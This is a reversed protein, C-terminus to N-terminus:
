KTGGGNGADLKIMNSFDQGLGGRTFVNAQGAPSGLPQMGFTGLGGYGTTAAPTIGLVQQLQAIHMRIQQALTPDTEAQVGNTFEELAHRLYQIKEEQTDLLGAHKEWIVGSAYVINRDDQKLKKAHEIADRAQTFYAKKKAPDTEKKEALTVLLNAMELWAQQMKPEAKVTAQYEVLADELRDAAVLIQAKTNHAEPNKEKQKISTDLEDFVAQLKEKMEPNKVKDGGIGRFLLVARVMHADANVPQKDIAVDIHKLADDFEGKQLYLLAIQAECLPESAGAEKAATLEKMAEGCKEQMKEKDTISSAENKLLTGYLLHVDKSNPKIKLAEVCEKEANAIGEPGGKQAYLNILSLHPEIAKPNLEAARQFARIAREVDGNFFLLQGVEMKHAYTDNKDGAAFAAQSGLLM